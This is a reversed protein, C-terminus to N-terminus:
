RRKQFIKEQKKDEILKQAAKVKEQMTKIEKKWENEDYDMIKRAKDYEMNLELAYKKFNDKSLDEKEFYTIRLLLPLFY